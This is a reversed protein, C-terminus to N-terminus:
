RPYFAFLVDDCSKKLGDANSDEIISPSTAKVPITKIFDCFEEVVVVFNIKLQVNEFFYM